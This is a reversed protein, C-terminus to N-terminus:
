SPFVQKFPRISVHAYVGSQTYPDQDAWDRAEALSDFEAVILSGLFGARGPDQSEVAPFPGALVLRGASQLQELRELHAPRAALRAALSEPVDEGIIAFLM